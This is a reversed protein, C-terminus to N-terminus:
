KGKQYTLVFCSPKNCEVIVCLVSSGATYMNFENKKIQCCQPVGLFVGLAKLFPIIHFTEILFIYSSTFYYVLLCKASTYRSHARCSVKIIPLCFCVLFCPISIHTSHIGKKVFFPYLATKNWWKCCKPLQLMFKNTVLFFLFCALMIAVLIFCCPFSSLLFFFLFASKWLFNFPFGCLQTIFGILVDQTNSVHEQRGEQGLKLFM